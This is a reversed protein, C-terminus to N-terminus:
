VDGLLRESGPAVVEAAARLPSLNADPGRCLAPDCGTARVARRGGTGLRVVMRALGCGTRDGGPDDV